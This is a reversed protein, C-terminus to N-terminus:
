NKAPVDSQGGSASGEPPRMRVDDAQGSRAAESPSPREGLQTQSPNPAGVGGTTTADSPTSRPPLVTGPDQATQAIASGGADFSACAAVAFAAGIGVSVFRRRFPIM